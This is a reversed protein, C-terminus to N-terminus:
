IREEHKSRETNIEALLLRKEEFLDRHKSYLERLKDGTEFDIIGEDLKRYHSTYVNRIQHYVLVIEDHNKDLEERLIELTDM